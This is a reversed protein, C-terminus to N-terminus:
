FKMQGRLMLSQDSDGSPPVRHEGRLDFGLDPGLEFRVGLRTSWADGSSLELGGGPTLVGGGMRLGYGLQANLTPGPVFREADDDPVARGIGTDWVGSVWDPAEGWSSGVRFSLGRGGAGPAATVAGSVGWAEVEGEHAVLARSRAEVSLRSSPADYRLGGGIEMGYGTEGDGGDHRVDLEVSPRLRGGSELVREHAGELVVRVRSVDVTLGRLLSGNGELEYESWWAEGKLDVTTTGGAILDEREALRLSGGVAATTQRGDSSESVDVEEVEVEDTGYGVVAWWRAQPSVRWSAYPHVSTMRSEHTGEIRAGGGAAQAYDFSSETWSLALGALVGDHLWTDAGLHFGALEGDWEVAAGDGGSRTRYDGAGWFTLGGPGGEKGGGDTGSAAHVSAAGLRGSGSPGLRLRSDDPRGDSSPSITFSTGALLERRWNLATENARLFDALSGHGGVRMAMPEDEADRDGSHAAEIRGTMADLSSSVSARASEPLIATNVDAFRVADDDDTITLTVAAPAHAGQANEATASVRVTKDLAYVDNDVAAISVQGTSRTEGAAITLVANRSLAFDGAVAPAVPVASVTVTTAASSARDLMATVTAAGGAETITAPTLVLAVTPTEDDDTITLTVAAPAHAGQANEATASVRVSKDPADVDNDVAAISVEGTSRTEGAAITLVANRSLTFDGTVAPAVPVASVTVTTAASSPRDLMATVTAAGGAEAISDPTLALTVMPTEDDDTLTLM